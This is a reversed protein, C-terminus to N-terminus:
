LHLRINLRTLWHTIYLIIFSFVWSRVIGVVGDGWWQNWFTIGFLALLTYFISPLIYALLPNSGAPKLIFTWGSIKKVDILWYLFAFILCCIASSYLCWSPTAYIKSIGYLPRLLYGAIFLMLAYIGLWKLRATPETTPSDPLFLLGTIMGAVAISGHGGIHGGVSVLDTLNYWWGFAGTRDGIFMLILIALSGIMGAQSRRFLVYVLNTILYAWGILGLIGWWSTHMWGIQSTDGSRYIAAIGVLIIVGIWRLFSYRTYQNWVLIVGLYFLLSWVSRNIGSLSENLGHTNVMFVGLCLLGLTRIAIHLWIRSFTEGKRIRSRVAFPIAMGVIFLFAPFVLDVFTMADASASAHKMWDPISGVSALDNVFVMMLITFGRFIDISLLRETKIESQSNM